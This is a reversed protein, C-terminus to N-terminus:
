WRIASYDPSGLETGGGPREAGHGSLALDRRICIRFISLYHADETQILPQSEGMVKSLRFSEQPFSALLGGWGEPETSSSSVVPPELCGATAYRIHHFVEM